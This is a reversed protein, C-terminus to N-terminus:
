LQKKLIINKPNIKKKVSQANKKVENKNEIVSRSEEIIIKKLEESCNYTIDDLKRLDLTGNEIETTLEKKMKNVLSNADM